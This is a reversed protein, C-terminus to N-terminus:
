KGKYGPNPIQPLTELPIREVYKTGEDQVFAIGVETGHHAAPWSVPALGGNYDYTFGSNIANYFAERSLKPGAKKLAAIFFDATWYGSAVPLSFAIDSKYAKLDTVMQKVAPNTPADEFPVFQIETVMGKSTGVIRPDYDTFGQVIGKYGLQTLKKYLELSDAFSGVIEILDPQHGGNSQILKQAFPTYDGIVAPPSPITTDTAVVKAGDHSWVAGFGALAGSASDNDESILAVAKGKATGDPFLKQEARVFDGIKPQATLECDNGEFGFGWQLDCWRPETSWGLFPVKAANLYQAGGFASTLVPAVAFEHDQQVLTKAATLNQDATQNDDIITDLVIKRGYIGGADNQRKIRANFGDEAGGYSAKYIIAGVHVATATVGTTTDGVVTNPTSAGPTTASRSSTSTSKNSTCAAIAALMAVM